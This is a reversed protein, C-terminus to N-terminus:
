YVWGFIPIRAFSKKAITKNAGPVFPTCVPVDMLSTHNSVVIYTEGKKFHEKGKVTLPCAILFLYVRMWAVSIRRFAETGAPEKILFTICVPLIIVLLTVAFTLLGWLAWIAGFVNKVVKM